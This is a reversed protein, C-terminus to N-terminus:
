QVQNENNHFVSSLIQLSTQLDETSVNLPPLLRLVDGAAPVTLLGSDRLEAVLPGVERKMVLGILFGQGRVGDVLSPFRTKLAQLERKYWVSLDRVNQLLNESKIIDLVALSAACAMPNGGFTCGHSGPQFLEAFQEHIWVAGIPFGGGLGKAMAIGDPIIGSEEHAFFTGTRGVGCQVEDLLLLVGRNTCLERLGCLFDVTAAHVGGEGQIPEILVASTNETIAESFLVLDNFKVHSFGPLIPHFGAQTKEQGTASLGGFTRGHFSGRATVVQFRQNEQGSVKKGHLRSLKVLTETAEAGSNCFFIRGPGALKCLRKALDGQLPSAYLNSCHGLQAVQEQVAKVWVPHCHGLANVAVGTSFDLYERGEDDWARTGEGRVIAIPPSAYNKLVFQDYFEKTKSHM